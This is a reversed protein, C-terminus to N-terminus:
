IRYFKKANETTMRAAIDVPVEKLRSLLELTKVLDSPVSPIGQYEQPADTEILIRDLPAHDICLQHHRSYALAPTASVHYGDSLIRDLIEIPGSFWHFVAKEIGADVLMRHTREYSFRSHVIVPKKHTEALRLLRFFVDKQIPKKIKVKYDLGVEGLAICTSLNKEIFSLTNDIEETRIKWPHYGVAPVVVDPYKQALELTEENSPQDMGVAIIRHVGASEAREIAPGVRDIEDLHVHTDILM